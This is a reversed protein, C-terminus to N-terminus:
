WTLINNTKIFVICVYVVIYIRVTNIQKITKVLIKVVLVIQQANNVPKYIYDNFCLQSIIIVLQYISSIKKLGLLKNQFIAELYYLFCFHLIYILFFNRNSFYIFKFKNLEFIISNKNSWNKLKIFIKEIIKISM